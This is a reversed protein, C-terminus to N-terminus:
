HSRKRKDREWLWLLQGAYVESDESGPELGVSPAPLLLAADLGLVQVLGSAIYAARGAGDTHMSQWGAGWLLGVTYALAGEPSAEWSQM